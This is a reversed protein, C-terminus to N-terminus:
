LLSKKLPLSLNVTTGMNPKSKYNMSGTHADIIEKSFRVALRTGGSKTTFFAEGIKSLTKEDMGVGNDIVTIAIGKNVLRAKLKISGNQGEPISEISNKIINIFVQKLRDYDGDIYAEEDIISCSFKINKNKCLLYAIECIDQLLVSIDLKRKDVNLKTLTMFDNMLTLTREIEQKIIPIYRKVHDANNSDFMDLYGKCVAIPNKIEHTIKFLSDRLQKQKELEKMTMHLSMAQESKKMLYCIMHTTFYFTFPLIIVWKMGEFNNPSISEIEM